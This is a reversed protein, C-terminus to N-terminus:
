KATTMKVGKLLKRKEVISKPSHNNSKDLHSSM